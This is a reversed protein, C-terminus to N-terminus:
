RQCRVSNAGRSVDRCPATRHRGAAPRLRCRPSRPAPNSNMSSRTAARRGLITSQPYACPQPGARATAALWGATCLHLEEVPVPDYRDFLQVQPRVPWAFNGRDEEGVRPVCVWTFEYLRV